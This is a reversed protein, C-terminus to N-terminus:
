WWTTPPAWPFCASFSKARERPPVCCIWETIGMPGDGGASIIPNFGAKGATRGARNRAPRETVVLHYDIGAQKLANEVEPRRKQADWRAAYPNLIVKAPM